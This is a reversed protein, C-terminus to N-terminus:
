RNLYTLLEGWLKMSEAVDGSVKGQERLTFRAMVEVIYARYMERNMWRGKESTMHAIIEKAGRHQEFIATQTFFHYRDLHPPYSLQAYEWDFVFLEGREVFMNWPTFDAHYAAFDVTKGSWKAKICSWATEVEHRIDEDPLWALHNMLADIVRFYDSEEFLIEKRTKAYLRNVFEEHLPSWRHVVKSRRSKATSQVFVSINDALTGCFLVRPVGGIGADKLADLYKAEQSFLRAIAESETLKVYGSIHEGKSVQMTMKQHVCPTGCFIAFDPGSTCFTKEFLRNLDERLSCTLREAHIAKVIPACGHLWPLLRKLLKGNRGSPQYLEMATRLNKTPMLWVKGDANAFRVFREGDAGTTLVESLLHDM